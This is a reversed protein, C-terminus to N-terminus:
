RQLQQIKNKMQELLKKNELAVEITQQEIELNNRTAYIIVKRIHGISFKKKCRQAVMNEWNRPLNRVLIRRSEETM